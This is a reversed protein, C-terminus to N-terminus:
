ADERVLIARLGSEPAAQPADATRFRFVGDADVTPAWILYITTMVASGVDARVELRQVHQSIEIDNIFVRCMQGLLRAM